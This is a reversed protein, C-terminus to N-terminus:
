WQWGQPTMTLTLMVSNETYEESDLDSDVVRYRDSLSVRLWQTLQHGIEGKITYIDDKRDPTADKYDNRRYSGTLAFDTHRALAYNLVGLVENYQTFGLNDGGFYTNQYGSGGRLRFTSRRTIEWQKGIDVLLSLGDDNGEEDIDRYYYGTRINLYADQAFIWEFGLGPDYVHFDNEDGDYLVTTHMYDVFGTFHRNFAHVIGANGQWQDFDDSEEAFKGPDSFEGRTFGAEFNTGWHPVFWYTLSTDVSHRTSDEGYESDEWVKGFSYSSNWSNKPGFQYDIGVDVVNTTRPEREERTTYYGLEPSEVDQTTDYSLEYATYPEETRLLRDRLTFTTNKTLDRAYSMNLNHRIEDYESNDAYISFGPSYRLEAKSVKSERSILIGPSIITIFDSEEDKDDTDINDNYEESIQLTPQVNVVSQSFSNSIFTIVLFSTGIMILAIKISVYRIRM